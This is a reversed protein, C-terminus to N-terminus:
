EAVYSDKLFYEYRKLDSKLFNTLGKSTVTAGSIGDVEHKKGQTGKRQNLSISVLEGQDNFIKKNKNFTFQDQFWDKDVEGGLGSTEKHKYFTIGLATNKDQGIAFYGKLTSWLGKGSIPIIYGQPSSSYYIPLYPSEKNDYLFMTRGNSKDEVWKLDKPDIGDIINGFTDIIMESINQDFFTVMEDYTMADTDIGVAGLISEKKDNRVNTNKREKLFENAVALLLSVIFAVIMVFNILKLRDKM